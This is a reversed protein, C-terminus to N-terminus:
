EILNDNLVGFNMLPRSVSETLCDDLHARIDSSYSRAADHGSGVIHVQQAAACQGSTASFAHIDKVSDEM